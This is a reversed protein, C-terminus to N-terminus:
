SEYDKQQNMFCVYAVLFNRKIISKLLPEKKNQLIRKRKCFCDSLVNFNHTSIMTGVHGQLEVNEFQICTDALNMKLSEFSLTTNCNYLALMTHEIHM